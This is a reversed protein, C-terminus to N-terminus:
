FNIIIIIIEPMPDVSCSKMPKSLIIKDIEGISYTGYSSFAVTSPPLTTAPPSQGTSARITESKEVFYEILSQPTATNTTTNSSVNNLGM